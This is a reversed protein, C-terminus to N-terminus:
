FWPDRSSPPYLVGEDIDDMTLTVGLSYPWPFSVSGSFNPEWGEELDWRPSWSVSPNTPKLHSCSYNTCSEAKHSHKLSFAGGPLSQTSKSRPTCGYLTVGLDGLCSLVCLVRHCHVLGCRSVWVCPSMKDLSGPYVPTHPNWLHKNVFLLFCLSNFCLSTLLIFKGAEGIKM